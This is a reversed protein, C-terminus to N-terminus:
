MEGRRNASGSGVSKHPLAGVLALLQESNVLRDGVKHDAGARYVRWGARRLAVAAGYIEASESRSAVPRGRRVRRPPDFPLSMQPTTIRRM